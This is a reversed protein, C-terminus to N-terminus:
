AGLKGEFFLVGDVPANDPLVLSSARVALAREGNWNPPCFVEARVRVSEGIVPERYTLFSSVRGECQRIFVSVYPQM